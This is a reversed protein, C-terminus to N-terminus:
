GIRETPTTAADTMAVPLRINMTMKSITAVCALAGIGLQCLALGCCEIASFLDAVTAQRHFGEVGGANLIKAVAIEDLHFTHRAAM